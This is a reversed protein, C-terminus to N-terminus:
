PHGDGLIDHRTLICRSKEHLCRLRHDHENCYNGFKLSGLRILVLIAIHLKGPAACSATSLGYEYSEPEKTVHVFDMLKLSGGDNLLNQPKLDRHMYGASHLPTVANLIQQCAGNVASGSFAGFNTDQSQDSVWPMLLYKYRGSALYDIM